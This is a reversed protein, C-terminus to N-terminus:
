APDVDIVIRSSKYDPKQLVHQIIELLYLKVDVVVKQNKPLKFYIQELYQNRIRNIVPEEPGVIAKKGFKEKLIRGLYLSTREAKLKDQNKVIIKILRCFPPYLFQKRHIIEKQYFTKYDHEVVM